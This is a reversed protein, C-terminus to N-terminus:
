SLEQAAEAQYTEIECTLSYNLCHGFKHLLDIVKPSSTLSHLGDSVYFTKASISTGDDCCVCCRPYFIWCTSLNKLKKRNCSQCGKLPIRGRELLVGINNAKKQAGLLEKCFRIQVNEIPNNKPLKLCEWFDSAYLLIPKILSDFLHLSILVYKMFYPGLKIKM